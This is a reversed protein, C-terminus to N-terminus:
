RLPLCCLIYLLHPEQYLFSQFCFLLFIIYAHHWDLLKANSKGSHFGWFDFFDLVTNRKLAAYIGLPISIIIAIVMAILSLTLTATLRSFVLDSAPQQYQLSMGFDGRVLDGLFGMYQVLFPENLGLSERLAERDAPTANEPLMMSVPDGAVYVLCFIIFTLILLSPIVQLLIKKLYLCHM